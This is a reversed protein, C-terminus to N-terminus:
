RLRSLFLSKVEKIVNDMEKELNELKLDGAIVFSKEDTFRLQYYLKDSNVRTKNFSNSLVIEDNGRGGDYIWANDIEIKINDKYDILSCILNDLFDKKINLMKNSKIFAPIFDKLFTKNYQYESDVATIYDSFAKIIIEVNEKETETIVGNEIWFRLDKTNEIIM